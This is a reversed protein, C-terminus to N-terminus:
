ILLKATYLCQPWDFIDDACGVVYKVQLYLRHQPDKWNDIDYM